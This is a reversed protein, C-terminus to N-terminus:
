VEKRSQNLIQRVSLYSKKKNFDEYENRTERNIRRSTNMDFYSNLYSTKPLTRQSLSQDKRLDYRPITIEEKSQELSSTSPGLHELDKSLPISGVKTKKPIVPRLYVDSIMKSM